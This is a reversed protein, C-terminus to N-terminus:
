MSLDGNLHVVDYEQVYGQVHIMLCWLTCNTVLYTAWSGKTLPEFGEPALTCHTLHQQVRTWPNLGWCERLTGGHNLGCTWDPYVKVYIEPLYPCGLSMLFTTSCLPCILIMPLSFWSVSMPCFVRSQASSTWNTLWWYGGSVRGIIWLLPCM